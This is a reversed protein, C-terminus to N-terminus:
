FGGMGGSPPQVKPAVGTPKPVRDIGEDHPANPVPSTAAPRNPTVTDPDRPHRDRPLKPSNPLPASDRAPVSTARAPPKM